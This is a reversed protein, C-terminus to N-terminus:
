DERLATLPDIGAARRAPFFSAALGSAFLLAAASGLAVPDGAHVGFLLGEVLRGLALAGIGGIVLGAGVLRLGDKVVLRTVDMPQAGVALRVAMERRRQSVSYALVGYVGVIALSLALLGSAAFLVTQARRPLLSTAVVQRLTAIRTVPQEPDVERVIRRLSAALAAPDGDTKVALDTPVFYAEPDQPSCVFIEPKPAIDLRSQGANPVIGVITLWPADTGSGDGMTLRRGLADGSPFHRRVLAENVIAVNEAGQADRRDFDRGRVPMGMATVYGATVLRASTTREEGPRPKAEGEALIFINDGPWTLPLHSTYGAATVGPLARAGELVREFFQQRQAATTREESLATRLTLVGEPDFGLPVKQLADLSRLMLAGGVLLCLALAVEATVLLGRLRSRAATVGRAGPVLRAYGAGGLLSGGSLLGVGLGAIVSVALTVGLPVFGLSGAAFGALNDPLLVAAAASLALTLGVGLVGALLGIALGECLLLRLLDFRGAGLALRVGMPGQRDASRALSLNAVNVAAILLVLLTAGFLALLAPRVEGTLQQRIPVAYAGLHANSDPYAQELRQAITRLEANASALDTEPRLRGFVTLYHNGRSERERPTWALPTVLDADMPLRLQPVVGVVTVPLGDLTLTRGVQSADAGLRRWLGESLVAVRAAGPEDEGAVFGRGSLPRVGMVDFFDASVAIGEVLQPEGQGTLGFTRASLAAMGSFSKAERKWDLYNAVAPTNDPFGWHSADEWVVTLRDSDAFPLPALLAGHVLRFALANVGVGLALTLVTALAYAPNRRLQRLALRLDQFLASM